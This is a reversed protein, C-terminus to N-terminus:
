GEVERLLEMIRSVQKELDADIEALPRPPVYKYFHRTFPIEYGVKTKSEEVWADPVHPLVEADFYAKISADRGLDGDTNGGYTFPVNETDRKKTDPKPNGKRDKSVKGTETLLPQEVTITWYGFDNATFVKSLDPDADDFDDYLAVIRNRAAEDLERNKSGLSKRMKTWFSTADILQVKGQREPQKSNDLLWIYTAIGTNFFMNTPLAIIAEVLDSELLWQRIKSPGSEAAGNFLPSGNLVIGARGGGDHEPRMKSALHCLFLMQGDGISPLGHSFRSNTALAEKKVSEQSAKWDVGYPPNSMCFDFTRDFFLDDALTDGLRINNADQGKGIMDSKCIAYSQDNIEQGYLRLRADPNRELLREEAVSLMGGTGATPDYITRITGPELLAESEEAFLLDVMLRIADRPTYHEGAEENSAEAFKYILYEFLDGMEANPVSDPHLDVEAFQSTVLYLRKKEDLTALENEFKFREFVDINSSFSTIYDMLNARLGEPDELLTAFDYPSTNYFSLGTKRKVQVDLAGGSHKDALTRVEDRTPELICDLRRLITFPLIVGGYQHPKYVGRLQDAIGWVFNGLSSM